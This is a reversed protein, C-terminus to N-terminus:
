RTKPPYPRTYCPPTIAVESRCDGLEASRGASWSLFLRPGRLSQRELQKSSIMTLALISCRGRHHCGDRSGRRGWHSGWHPPESVAIRDVLGMPDRATGRNGSWDRSPFLETQDPRHWRGAAGGGGCRRSRDPAATPTQTAGPSVEDAKFMDDFGLVVLDSMPM